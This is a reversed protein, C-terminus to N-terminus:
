RRAEQAPRAAWNAVLAFRVPKEPDQSRLEHQTLYVGSLVGSRELRDVYGLIADLNRAEGSLRLTRRPADPQVALLAVDRDRATEIAKFLEDWPLALQHLIENAQRVELQLAASDDARAAPLRHAGAKELSHMNQEAVRLKEALRHQAAGVYLAAVLGAALLVLGAGSLLPRTRRFDLTIPRM